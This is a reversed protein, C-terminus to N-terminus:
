KPDSGAGAVPLAAACKLCVSLQVGDVSRAFEQPFKWRSCLHCREQELGGAAQAEAWEHWALYGSPPPSGVPYEGQFTIVTAGSAAGCPGIWVEPM